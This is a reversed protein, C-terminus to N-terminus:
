RDLVGADIFDGTQDGTAALRKCALGIRQALSRKQRCVRVNRRRGFRAKNVKTHRM